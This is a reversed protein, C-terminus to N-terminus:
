PHAELVEPYSLPRAELTLRLETFFLFIQAGVAVSQLAGKHKNESGIVKCVKLKSYSVMAILSMTFRLHQIRGPTLKPEMKEVVVIAALLLHGRKQREECCSRKM